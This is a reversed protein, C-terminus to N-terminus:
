ISNDNQHEKNKLKFLQILGQDFSHFLWPRFLIGQGPKLLYNIQLDWEFFNRYNFHHGDLATVAGSQHEFINFTSPELAVAFLWDGPSSFDEFHVFLQPRRIIGSNDEDVVLDNDIIASFLENCNEPIMNFNEIQEGYNNKVFQLNRTIDAINTAEEQSFFGDVTILKVLPNIM